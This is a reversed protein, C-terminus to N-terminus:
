DETEDWAGCTCESESHAFCLCTKAEIRMWTMLHNALKDDPCYDDLVDEIEFLKLYDRM